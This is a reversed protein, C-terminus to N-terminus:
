ATQVKASIGLLDFLERIHAPVRAFEIPLADRQADELIDLLYSIGISNVLATGSFDLQLSRVGSRLLELCEQELLEGGNENLYGRLFVTARGETQKRELQLQKM